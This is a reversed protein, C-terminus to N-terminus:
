QVINLLKGTTEDFYYTYSENENVAIEKLGKALIGTIPDFYYMNEEVVNGADDKTTMTIWGKAMLGTKNDYYYTNGEQEPYAKALDGEITVWGKLMAGNENYRVWKGVGEVMYQFVLDQMCEDSFTAATKMQEATMTGEEQYIYPVWVEKGVARAGDYCSDLWYWEKGDCIERGRNIAKKTTDDYGYVGNSDAYTGQRVGNEYWYWIGSEGNPKYWDNGATPHNPDNWVYEKPSHYEVEPLQGPKQVFEPYPGYANGGVYNYYLYWVTGYKDIYYKRRNVEIVAFGETNGAALDEYTGTTGMVMKGTAPDFWRYNVINGNEDRWGYAGKVTRGTTPDLRYWDKTVGHQYIQSNQTMSTDCKLALGHDQYIYSAWAFDANGYAEEGVEDCYEPDVPLTVIPAGEGKAYGGALSCLMMGDREPDNADPKFYYPNGNMERIAGEETTLHTGIRKNNEYYYKHFQVNEGYINPNLFSEKHYWGTDAWDSAKVTGYLQEDTYGVSKAAARVIEAAKGTVSIITGHRTEKTETTSGLKYAQIGKVNEELFGSYGDLKGTTGV